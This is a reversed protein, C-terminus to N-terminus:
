PLAGRGAAPQRTFWAMAEVAGQRILGDRRMAERIVRQVGEFPVDHFAVIGDDAVFPLWAEYDQLVSEYRHDGDIWLLGINRDNWARAAAVSPLSVVSVIDGASNEVISRYLEAQDEPGFRGGLVGSFPLHPDVAYVRNGCHLRSGLALALTSRGRFSGIEVIVSDSGILGTLEVLQRAERESIQGEVSMVRTVLEPVSQSLVTM